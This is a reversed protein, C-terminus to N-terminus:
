SPTADLPSRDPTGRRVQSLGSRTSPALPHREREPSGHDSLQHGSDLRPRPRSLALKNCSHPTRTRSVRHLSASRTTAGGTPARSILEFSHPKGKAATEIAANSRAAPHGRTLTDQAIIPARPSDSLRRYKHTTHADRPTGTRRPHRSQLTTDPGPRGPGPRTGRTRVRCSCQQVAPRCWRRCSGGSPHYM